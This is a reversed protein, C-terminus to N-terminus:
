LRELIDNAIQLIEMLVGMGADADEDSNMFGLPIIQVLLRHSSNFGEQMDSVAQILRRSTKNTELVLEVAETNELRSTRRMDKITIYLDSKNKRLLPTGVLSMASYSIAGQSSKNRWCNWRVREHSVGGQIEDFREELIDFVRNLYDEMDRQAENLIYYDQLYMRGADSMRM